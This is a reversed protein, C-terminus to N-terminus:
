NFNTYFSKKDVAIFFILITQECRLLLIMCSLSDQIILAIASM